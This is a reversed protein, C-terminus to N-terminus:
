PSIKYALHQEIKLTRKSNGCCTKIIDCQKARTLVKKLVKKLGGPGFGQKAKETGGERFLKTIIGCGKGETLEKKLKKRKKKANRKEWRYITNRHFPM